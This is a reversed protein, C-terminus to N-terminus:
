RFVKRALFSTALGVLAVLAFSFRLSSAEAVFGIFPPGALFGAFGVSTVAALAQGPHMTESKGARSYVIPVVSSVGFGVMMFGITAVLVTPMLVALMLGSFIIIGSYILTKQPGIKTVVRDALFRGTAMCGMFAAYGLSILQEPAKVAKKFYVGSWDFMTGECLLCGFAILGIQLIFKDPLAFLPGSKQETARITKGQFFLILLWCIIASIIFHFTPPVQLYIMLTALAAGTFGALSWVGHFSALISRGYMKEVGVAQTNVSINFTNAAVGFLFLALVLQWTQQCLGIMVLILSYALSSIILITKSGFRTILAGAMLLSAMLGVPLTFLVSGLAVESLGLNFQIQPIRSAWSSFTFGGTFFFAAIAFRAKKSAETITDMGM